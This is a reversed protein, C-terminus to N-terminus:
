RSVVRAIHRHLEAFQGACGDDQAAGRRAQFRVQAGLAALERPQFQRLADKPVLPAQVVLLRAVIQRANGVRRGRM